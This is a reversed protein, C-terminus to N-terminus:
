TISLSVLTCPSLKLSTVFQSLALDSYDSGLQLNLVLRQLRPSKLIVPLLAIQYKHNNRDIFIKFFKIYTDALFKSYFKIANKKIKSDVLNPILFHNFHPLRRFRHPTNNLINKHESLALLSEVTLNLNFLVLNKAKTLVRTTKNLENDKKIQFDGSCCYKELHKLRFYKKLVKGQFSFNDLRKDQRPSSANITLDKLLTVKLMLPLVCHIFDNSIEVKKIRKLIHMYSGQIFWRRLKQLRSQEFPTSKSATFTRYCKLKIRSQMINDKSRANLTTTFYIFKYPPRNKNVLLNEAILVDKNQPLGKKFAKTSQEM